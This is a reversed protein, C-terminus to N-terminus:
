KTAELAALLAKQGSKTISYVNGHEEDVEPKVFGLTILSPFHKVDNAKRVEDKPSGIWECCGALDVPAKSAILSRPLSRGAKNLCALIKVQPKRLGEKKRSVGNTTHGNSEAATKNTKKSTTATAM